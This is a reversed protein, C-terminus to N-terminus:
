RVLLIVLLVVSWILKVESLVPSRCLDTDTKSSSALFAFNFHSFLLKMRVKVNVGDLIFRGQEKYEEYQQRTYPTFGKPSFFLNHVQISFHSRLCDSTM